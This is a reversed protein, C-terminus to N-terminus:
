KLVDEASAPMDPADSGFWKKHIENLTGKQKLSALAQNVENRLAEDKKNFGFGFYQKKVNPLPFTVFDKSDESTKMFYEAVPKDMIGAESNGAKLDMTIESSSDLGKMKLGNEECYTAGTTAMQVAVTVNKLDEASKVGSSKKALVYLTTEYDPASFLIKDARPKTITMGTVSMDIERSLLAPILGDFSYNKFTVERGMEKALAETLDIEYGKFTEGDKFEFPVYTASTGVRIPEKGASSAKKDGGCGAMLAAATVAAATLLAAATWGKKM